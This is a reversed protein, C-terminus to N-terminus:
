SIVSLWFWLAILTSFLVPPTITLGVRMYQGWTIKQGKGALVHLWLLTSLSGIPTFKPGLDNGVVNAFVMLEKTLPAVDARDIALAGVLTAPMNNM